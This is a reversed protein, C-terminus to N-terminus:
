LTELHRRLMDLASLASAIRIQERGQYGFKFRQVKYTDKTALGIYVLGPPNGDNDYGPGAVGTVSVAIDCGLATLAGKAMSEAVQSSVATHEQIMDSPVQLLTEKVPIQYSVIGGAFHDAVGPLDTMFSSIMGGTCSEATGLTMNLKELLDLCVSPLTDENVGYIKDGLIARVEAEVPEILASAEKPTNAKATIRLELEGVKAYPALTPNTLSNMKERLLSEAASEGIGFVRLSRSSIIGDTKEQLMPIVYDLFMAQCEIPPGPLMIATSGDAEIICGPATGKNNQLVTCGQPLMAQQYNNETVQRSARAFLADIRDASEQHFVLDRGFAKAVSSKTIDDCTPGLGGTTIIIDARSKALNIADEIRQPNDGVVSHYYVNIGLASLEKSLFQANTNAISGLLLETGVAVLEATQSM